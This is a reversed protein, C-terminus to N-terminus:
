MAMYVISTKKKKQMKGELEYKDKLPISNWEYKQQIFKFTILKFNWNQIRKDHENQREKGWRSERKREKTERIKENEKRNENGQDGQNYIKRKGLGEEEKERKKRQKGLRIERESGGRRGRQRKQQQDKQKTEDNWVGFLLKTEFM